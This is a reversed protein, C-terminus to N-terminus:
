KPTRRDPETQTSLISGSDIMLQGDPGDEWAIVDTGDLATAFQHLHRESIGPAFRIYVDGPKLKDVIAFLAQAEENSTVDVDVICVVAGVFDVGFISALLGSLGQPEREDIGLQQFDYIVQGGHAEVWRVANRQYRTQNAVNAIWIVLMSIGVLFWKMSFRIRICRM